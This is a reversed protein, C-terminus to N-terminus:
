HEAHLLHLHKIFIQPILSVVGTGETEANTFPLSLRVVKRGTKLRSDPLQIPFTSQSRRLETSFPFM